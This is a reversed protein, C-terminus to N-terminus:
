AIFSSRSIRRHWRFRIVMLGFIFLLGLAVIAGWYADESPPPHYAFCIESQTQEESRIQELIEITELEPRAANVIYVSGNFSHRNEFILRHEGPSLTFLPTALEIQAMGWGTRLEAPDPIQFEAVRIELDQGDLSVSLDRLFSDAYEAGEERLIEGNKNRDVRQIFQEAVEVGPTLNVYLRVEKPSISILTAQTFEDLEHGSVSIALCALVVQLLIVIGIVRTM